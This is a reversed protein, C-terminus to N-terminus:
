QGATLQFDNIAGTLAGVIIDKAKMAGEKLTTTNINQEHVLEKITVNITVAKTGTAKTKEPKTKDDFGAIPKPKIGIEGIERGAMDIGKLKADIKQKKIQLIGKKVEDLFGVNDLQTQVDISEKILPDKREKIAAALADAKSLKQKRLYYDYSERVGYAMSLADNGLQLKNNERMKDNIQEIMFVIGGLAVVFATLPNISLSAAFVESATTAGMASAAFGQLALNIGALIIRAGSIAKFAVWAATLAITMNKLMTANRKVWEVSTKIIEVFGKLVPMLQKALQIAMGGIEERINNFEHRLVTFPGSGAKSAADASGGFKLTLEDLIIGQAKAVQNTDFLHKIMKIQDESFQIGAKRLQLLGKGSLDNMAKGVQTTASQLDTGMKQSMDAIVPITRMFMEGRINTYITLLSQAKTIADDDFLSSQMIAAAQKDLAERNLGAINGTSKLTANLQASAQEAENFMEVSGKLFEFSAFLAAGKAIVRLISRELKNVSLNASDVGRSVKDRLSMEYVVQEVM